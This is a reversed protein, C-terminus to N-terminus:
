KPRRRLNRLDDEMQSWLQGHIQGYTTPFLEITITKSWLGVVRDNAECITVLNLDNSLHYPYDMLAKRFKENKRNINMFGGMTPWITPGITPCITPGITPGMTPCITPGITPGMTPGKTPGM